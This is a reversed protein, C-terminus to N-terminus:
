ARDTTGKSAQRKILGIICGIVLPLLLMLLAWQWYYNLITALTFKANPIIYAIFVDRYVAHLYPILVSSSDTENMVLMFIIVIVTLVLSWIGVHLGKLAYKLVPKM